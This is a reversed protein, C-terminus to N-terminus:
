EDRPAPTVRHMARMGERVFENVKAAHAKILKVTYPDASREVVKVGNPLPTIALDIRDANEFLARFLPDFGRIPRKEKLRAYMASVHDRLKAVVERDSSTTVTEVGDPLERVARQISEHAFLLAHADRMDRANGRGAPASTRAGGEGGGMCACGGDGPGVPDALGSAAPLALAAALALVRAMWHGM